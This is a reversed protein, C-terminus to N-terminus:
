QLSVPFSIHQVATRDPGIDGDCASPSPVIGALLLIWAAIGGSPYSGFSLLHHRAQSRRARPRRRHPHTESFLIQLSHHLSSGSHPRSKSSAARHRRHTHHQGAINPTTCAHSTPRRTIFSLPVRRATLNQRIRRFHTKFSSVKCANDITLGSASPTSKTLGTMRTTKKTLKAPSPNAYLSATLAKISTQQFMFSSSTSSSFRPSPVFSAMSNLRRSPTAAKATTGPAEVGKMEIEADGSVGSPGADPGNSIVIYNDKDTVSDIFMRSGIETDRSRKGVLISPSSAGPSGAVPGAHPLTDGVLTTDTDNSSDTATQEIDDGEDKSIIPALNALEM